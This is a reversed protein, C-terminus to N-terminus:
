FVRNSFGNEFLSNLSLMIMIYVIIEQKRKKISVVPTIYIFSGARYSGFDAVRGIYCKLLMLKFMPDKRM